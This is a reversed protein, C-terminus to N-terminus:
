SNKPSCVYTFKKQMLNSMKYKRRINQRTKKRNM